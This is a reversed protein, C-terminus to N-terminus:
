DVSRRLHMTEIFSRSKLVLRSIWIKVKDCIKPTIVSVDVVAATYRKTGIEQLPKLDMSINSFILSFIFLSVCLFLLVRDVSIINRQKRQKEHFLVIKEESRITM